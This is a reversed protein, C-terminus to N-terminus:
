SSGGGVATGPEPNSPCEYGPLVESLYTGVARRVRTPCVIPVRSETFASFTEGASGAVTSLLLEVSGALVCSQLRMCTPM